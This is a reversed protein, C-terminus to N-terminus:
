RCFSGLGRPAQDLHFHDHHAANYDPSLVTGFAQCASDRVAHLFATKKGGSTWGDRVSIRRGDALLFGSVDIANGTAHESWNGSGGGQVRRCNYIGLHEIRKVPSGLVARAAPQVSQRLWLELGAAVACTSPRGNPALLRGGLVIRDSRACEGSGAPPLTSFAIDSRALVAHCQAPDSRLAALKAGTAWGPADRLDLPTWPDDGPHEALWTRAALLCGALMLVLLITHDLTICEIM